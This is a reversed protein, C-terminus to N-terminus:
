EKSILDLVWVNSEILRMPFYFRNADTSLGLLALKFYPDDSIVKLGPEGGEVPVAWIGEVGRGDVASYYITKGDASWGPFRPRPTKLADHSEVLTKEKRDDLSFIRLSNEAVYAIINAAYSGRASSCGESTIQDPESWGSRDQTVIYHEFRGSRDSSFSIQKGNASFVPGMEHSPDDTIQEILEGDKSMVFIDRNGTRFSHFVIKEGDPSWGPAFDDSPHTTLQIVEGGGVPMKYIDQNGSISSDFILWQGDPSVQVTEIIQDGKTIQKAQSVSLPGKEPIELSWINSSLDLLSYILKKGDQSISITHADLGTTLRAPHAKPQGSSTLLVAYIDRAGARDSIFLLQKGDPTWAPSMNMSASGTVQSTSRNALSLVQISSPAINGILSMRYLPIDVNGWVFYLNGSVYAIKSGDPSWSLCHAEKVDIIKKSMGTELDFIHIAENQVFAMKGGDPSWAPSYASSGQTNDIIRRPVGGFAPVVYISGESYFALRNGDPSWRPWRQGASFDQTVAIPRGSAVQRVVLHMQGVPGTVYAVMKGDPSIDPDLELGPDYSVQRMIGPKIDAQAGGARFLVYVAIALLVIVIFASIFLKKMDFKVSIQKSTLPKKKPIAKKTVPIKSIIETVDREVEEIAQYRDTKEKALCKLVLDNLDGSIQSNLVKPPTLDGSKHKMAISLPTDGEFPLQGTLMEYLIIGLSYIDSRQDIDKAEAQEPSMYEPTGIMVGSGTLGKAKLSRAIGFDMIRVNGEKDIMVNSPKLDRHVVGSKHAESLGECIQKCISLITGMDLRVRRTLSKLDEGPVFEMTIFYTNKDKSLDYMRGVNKHVIKRALKLENRFREITKEDSAIEPKLLKLAVNEKLEKDYVKYVKGIGGKGLEEIIQYRGAFTSGTSLEEKPTELTETIDVDNPSILKTGCEACFTATEPNYSKCKPCKVPM